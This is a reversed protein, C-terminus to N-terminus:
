DLVGALHRAHEPSALLSDILKQRRDPSKEALFTRAQEPSPICGVLDLYIRRLFEADDALPAALKDFSPTASAVLGDIRDHLPQQAALPACVLLLLLSRATM